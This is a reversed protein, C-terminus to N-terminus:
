ESGQNEFGEYADANGESKSENLGEETTTRESPKGKLKDNLKEDEDIPKGMDALHKYQNINKDNTNFAESEPLDAPNISKDKSM